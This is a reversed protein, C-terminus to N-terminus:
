NMLPLDVKALPGLFNGLFGGSPIIKSIQTKSLKMNTILNNAFAKCLNAVQSNTLLAEHLFNATDSRTAIEDNCNSIVNSSLILIEKKTVLEM